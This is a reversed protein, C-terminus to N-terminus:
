LVPSPFAQADAISTVGVALAVLRDLGLANGSAPPMGRELAQLFREDIPYVPLSRSRREDQDRSLRERQEVADTLEGFGNCIEVGGIYLEFREAWRPDSPKKRALSAQSAPYDVLFVPTSMAAIAPEVRDIMRRFYEEEDHTALALTQDPETDAFRQFADAVTIRTFPRRLSIERGNLLLRTNNLTAFAEVVIAETDEIVREYPAFARYWELMTFEPNHWSGAEDKRFCPTIAFCRPVGGSLVRKMQYEPSTILFGSGADVADLHIDLGPSPVILPPNIEVSRERVFWTRIARLVQDRLRLHHGVRRFILRHADGGLPDTAIPRSTEVLSADLVETNFRDVRLVVLDGAEIVADSSLSFTLTEFADALVLTSEERHVVRGGVLRSQADRVLEARQEVVDYPSLTDM